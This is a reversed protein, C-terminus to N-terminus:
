EYYEILEKITTIISNYSLDYNEYFEDMSFRLIKWGNQEYNLVYFTYDDIYSYRVELGKLYIVIGLKVNQKTIIIDLFGFELSVSLTSDLKKVDALLKSYLHYAFEKLYTRKNFTVDQSKKVKFYSKIYHLLDDNKLKTRMKQSIIHIEKSAIAFNKMMFDIETKPLNVFDTFYVFSYDCPHINDLAFEELLSSSFNVTDFVTKSTTSSVLTRSSEFCSIIRIKKDLIKFAHEVSYVQLLDELLKSYLQRRTQKSSTIINITCSDDKMFLNAINNALDELTDVQSIDVLISPDYIYGTKTMVSTDYDNMCSAYCKNLSLSTNSPVYNLLNNNKFYVKSSDGMIVYKSVKFCNAFNYIKALSADDVIVLDFYSLYTIDNFSDIDSLFVHHFENIDSLNQNDLFFQNKKNIKNTNSLLERIKIINNHCYNNELSIYENVMEEFTHKDFKAFKNLDKKFVHDKRSTIYYKNISSVYYKYMSSYYYIDAIGKSYYGNQIGNALTKLKFNHFTDLTHGIMTCLEVQDLRKMFEEISLLNQTFDNNHYGKSGRFFCNSFNRLATNWEGSLSFIKQSLQYLEIYENSDSPGVIINFVKLGDLVRKKFSFFYGTTRRLEYIETLFGKFGKGFLTEYEVSNNNMTGVAYLYNEDNDILSLIDKTKVVSLKKFIENFANRAKIVSTLYPITQSIDDVTAILNDGGVVIHYEEFVKLIDFLQSENKRLTVIHLLLKNLLDSQSNIKKIFQLYLSSDEKSLGRCFKLFNAYERLTQEVQLDDVNNINPIAMVLSHLEEYYDVIMQKVTIFSVKSLKLLKKSILKGILRDRKKSEFVQKLTIYNLDQYIFGQIDQKINSLKDLRDLFAGAMLKVNSPSKEFEDIFSQDIANQMHLDSLKNLFTFTDNTITQFTLTSSIARFANDTSKTFDSLKDVFLDLSADSALLANVYISDSSKSDNIIFRKDLINKFYIKAKGKEYSSLINRSYYECSSMYTDILDNIESIKNMSLDQFNDDNWIKLPKITTFSFLENFLSNFENINKVPRLHYTACFKATDDIIQKQIAYFANTREIIEKSSPANKSSSLNAWPNQPFPDVKLFADEIKQLSQYVYEVEHKELNSEIPICENFGRAKFLALKELIYSYRYGFLKQDIIDRYDKIKDLISLDLPLITDSFDSKDTSKNISGTFDYIYKNGLTSALTHYVYDISSLDSNVYLVKKQKSIADAIINIAVHTKGTGVCSDLLINEGQHVKQLVYKQSMNSPLIATINHFYDKVLQYASNEYLSLGKHFPDKPLPIKPYEVSMISLYNETSVTFKSVNSTKLLCLDLDYCSSIKYEKLSQILTIDETSNVFHNIYYNLFVENTIPQSILSLAREEINLYVPILVLPAFREVHLTDYYRIVGCTLIFKSATNKKYLSYLYNLQYDFEEISEKEESLQNLITKTINFKGIGNNTIDLSAISDLSIKEGLLLKSLLLLDVNGLEIYYNDELINTLHTNVLEISYSQNGIRKM